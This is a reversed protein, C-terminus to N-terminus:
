IVREIELEIQDPNNIGFWVISEYEEMKDIHRQLQEETFNMRGQYKWYRSGLQRAAGFIKYIVSFLSNFPQGAEKGYVVIFRYKLAKLKVFSEKNENYREIFVYADDLAKSEQESEHESRKRSKGEQTHGSPNRIYSIADQAEYFLSM